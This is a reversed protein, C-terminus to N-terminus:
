FNVYLFPNHTNMVLSSVSIVALMLQLLYWVTRAGAATRGGRAALKKRFYPCLPFSAAAAIVLTVIYERLRFRFMSDTLVAGGRKLLWKTYLYAHTIDASRFIMWGYFVALLVGCRYVARALPKDVLRRPFGTLKEFVILLGHLLGWLLFTRNAGHWIGTALWVIMLNLATRTGSGTRSGGLSFYLYDRFWTGLSIHWRRWFDSIGASAYPYDFNERFSFGFMKGLGLAMDSYGSFDLYLQLSYAIMGLWAMGVSLRSGSFAADTIGSLVDALLVKKNLGTLFRLVGEAFGEATTKRERLQPRFDAYRLIPGQILQPFFSIFLAYSCPNKEAPMGRYIDILYSVSQFTYFSVALPMLFSTQPIIGEWLPFRARLGATVANLYKSACLLSFNLLLGFLFVAKRPGSQKELLLGLGYNVIIAALLLLFFRPEGWAYFFLSAALLWYNGATRPILYYVGLVVPFFFFLFELSSFTM